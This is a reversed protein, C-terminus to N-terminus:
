GLRWRTSRLALLAFGGAWFLALPGPRDGASSRFLGAGLSADSQWSRVLQHESTGAIAALQTGVAVEPPLAELPGLAEGGGMRLAYAVLSGRVYAHAPLAALTASEREAIDQLCASRPDPSGNRRETAMCRIVLDDPRGQNGEASVDPEWGVPYHEELLALRSGASGDYALGLFRHCADLDGAQLCRIGQPDTAGLLVRLGDDARYRRNWGQGGSWAVVSGPVAALVYDDV